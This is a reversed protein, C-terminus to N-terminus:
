KAKASELQRAAAIAGVVNLWASKAPIDNRWPSSKESDKAGRTTLARFKKASLM